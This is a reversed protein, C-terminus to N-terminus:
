AATARAKQREWLKAAHAYVDRDAANRAALAALSAGDVGDATNHPRAAAANVTSLAANGSKTVWGLAAALVPAAESLTETLLVADFADLRRKAEAAHKKTVNGFPLERLSAYGALERTQYNDASYRWQARCCHRHEGGGTMQSATRNSGSAFYGERRSAVKARARCIPCDALPRAAFEALSVRRGFPWGEYVGPLVVPRTAM